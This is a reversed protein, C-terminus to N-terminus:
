IKGWLFEEVIHILFSAPTFRGQLICPVGVVWQQAHYTMVVTNVHLQIQYKTRSRKTLTVAVRCTRTYTMFSQCTYAPAFIPSFVQAICSQVKMIRTTSLCQLYGNVMEM